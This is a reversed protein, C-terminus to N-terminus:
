CLVFLYNLGQTRNKKLLALVPVVIYIFIMEPTVILAWVYLLMMSLFQVSTSGM